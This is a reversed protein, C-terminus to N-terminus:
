EVSLATLSDGDELKIRVLINNGTADTGNQDGLTMTFTDNSHSAGDIIRDGSTFACGDSGNGGAGTNSGPTGAGAYTSGATLWGNTGSTSDINTGPAAIFLGSVTGTLRLVFNAMTTRRFAFTFYQTGSRGTALDPGVPLYGSSLNTDFHQLTNWRVVAETTGAITEAGTWASATYFDTSGAIAPTDSASGFGTIRKGDDDFGAGLSDSVAINEEDFTPSATWVQIKESTESTYSGTGNVNTARFKIAEVAAVNSTTIDVTIDGLAYPSAVGTQAIPVGSNLMTSSGDIDSYSRFEQQVTSGSTSELNTGSAIAFISSSDLYAEGVLNSVTASELKVKPSGSNYYPVGSVYRKSGATHEALNASGVNVTPASTVNDKVIYVNNTAGTTSHSLALSHVGTALSSINKTVRGSFVQFFNQPYTTSSIENYADGEATIVLSTFTGTEGTSTSFAKNGDASGDVLASVTGSDSRYADSITSTSVSTTTDYRRATSGNLSTGTSIGGVNNTAGHALKSTDQASTSLTLSKGSVSTPAAPLNELSFVVTDNDSQVTLDPQGSGTMTLTYSGANQSLYDHTINAGGVSGAPSGSEAVNDNSSGDGWAYVYANANQTTNDVTVIARNTGSLDTGKYLVRDNDNSSSLAQSVSTGTVTARLDPEVHVTFNSSKFPSSTHNSIVEINGVFDVATGSSQQGGSLAFTHDITGSTDGASGSGVNVTSTTGDGWVYRYQIGMAAFTGVGSETTNTFTVPHGSTATENIGSNDDLSVTPTHTDFVNVVATTNNPVTSPDATTHTLLTLKVTRQQDTETSTAFTHSLRSGQTGGTETDATITNDGSGDGWEVKYTASASGINTTQNEFYLATGDDIQTVEGGGSSAAFFGFDAVPNSTYLTIFNEKQLSTTSGEGAGSNHFATVTVDFPSLANNSYTHSPTSDTTATTTTGDGWNITYRNPNGTTSITLTAALPAGGSSVNTTYDVDRVFTNNYINLTAENLKDIADSVKETNSLSTVAGQRTVTSNGAYEGQNPTIHWDGDGTADINGLTLSFGDTASGQADLQAKTVFDAAATANAGQLRTLTANDEAVIQMLSADANGKLKPGQKGLQLSAGVGILGYNKVQAV